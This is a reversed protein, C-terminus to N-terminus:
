AKGKLQEINELYGEVTEGETLGWDERLIEVVKEYAEIAGTKDGMVACVQAISDYPDTFRPKETQRVVAERYDSLAKEYNARHAYADGRTFWAMWNDAYKDVMEDLLRESAPMDGEREAIMALYMEYHFSERVARMKEAVDRAESLRRDRILNDLYWFYGAQYDPHKATFDRYYDILATYNGACWDWLEPRMHSEILADHNAKKEPDIELAQRACDGALNQYHEARAIYLQALMTLCRGRLAGRTCYERLRQEAYRFDEESLMAGDEIMQDIRALHTEDSTAFLEDLTVGLAASIQPLLSIDPCSAGTEWKSVAQASVGLLEALREQTLDRRLRFNKIRKGFHEM